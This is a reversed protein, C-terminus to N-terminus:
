RTLYFSRLHKLFKVKTRALETETEVLKVISESLGETFSKIITRVYKPSYKLFLVDNKFVMDSAWSKLSSPEYLSRFGFFKALFLWMFYTCVKNKFAIFEKLYDTDQVIGKNILERKSDLESIMWFVKRFLILHFKEDSLIKYKVIEDLDNPEKIYEELKSWKDFILNYLPIHKNETAITEFYNKGINQFWERIKGKFVDTFDELFEYKHVRSLVPALGLSTIGYEKRTLGTRWKDTHIVRVFGDKELRSICGKFSSYYTPKLLGKHIEYLTSGNRTALFQLIAHELEVSKLSTRSNSLRYEDLL